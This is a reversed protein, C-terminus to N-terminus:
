GVNAVTNRYSTLVVLSQHPIAGIAARHIVQVIQSVKSRYNAM